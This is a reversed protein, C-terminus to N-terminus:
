TTKMYYFFKNESAKSQKINKTIAGLFEVVCPHYGVHIMVKIELLLNQFAKKDCDKSTKIAVTKSSNLVGRYVV